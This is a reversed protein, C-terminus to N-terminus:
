GAKEWMTLCYPNGFLGIPTPENKRVFRYRAYNENNIDLIIEKAQKLKPALNIHCMTQAMSGPTLVQANPVGIWDKPNWLVVIEIEETVEVPKIVVSNGQAPSTIGHLPIPSGTVHHVSNSNGATAPLDPSTTYSTEPYILRCPVSCAELVTDIGYEFLDQIDQTIVGDFPNAM